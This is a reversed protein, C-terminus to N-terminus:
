FLLLEPVSWYFPFFRRVEKKPRGCQLARLGCSKAAKIQQKNVVKKQGAKPNLHPWVEKLRALFPAFYSQPYILNVISIYVKTFLNKYCQM